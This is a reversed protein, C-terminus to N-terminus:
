STLVPAREVSVVEGLIDDVEDFFLILDLVPPSM